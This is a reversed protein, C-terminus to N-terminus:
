LIIFDVKRQKNKNEKQSDTLIVLDFENRTARMLKTTVGRLGRPKGLGLGLGLRTMM